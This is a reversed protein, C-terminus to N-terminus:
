KYLLTMLQSPFFALKTCNITSDRLVTSIAKYITTCADSNFAYATTYHEYVYLTATHTHTYTVCHVIEPRSLMCEFASCTYNQVLNIFELSSNTAHTHNKKNRETNEHEIWLLISRM